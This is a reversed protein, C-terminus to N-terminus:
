AITTLISIEHAATTARPCGIWEAKVLSVSGFWDLM